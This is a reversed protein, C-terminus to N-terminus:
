LCKKLGEELKIFPYRGVKNTAKILKRLSTMKGTKVDMIGIKDNFLNKYIIDTLDDIYIYDRKDKLDYITVEKDNLLKHIVFKENQGKGYVNFIRLGLTPIHSLKAILEYVMKVISYHNLEYYVSVSSPYIVKIPKYKDVAEMFKYFDMIDQYYKSNDDYKYGGGLFVVYNGAMKSYDVNNLKRDMCICDYKNKFNSGIFGESGILIISM